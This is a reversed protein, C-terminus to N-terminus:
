EFIVVFWLFINQCQIKFLFKNTELKTVKFVPDYSYFNDKSPFYISEFEDPSQFKTEGENIFETISKTDNVKLSNLEDLSKELAFDFFCEKEEDYAKISFFIIPKLIEQSKYGNKYEIYKVKDFYYELYADTLDIGKYEFIYDSSKIKLRTIESANINGIQGFTVKSM